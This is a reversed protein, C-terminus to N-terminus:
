VIEYRNNMFEKKSKNYEKTCKHCIFKSDVLKWKIPLEAYFCNNDESWSVYIDTTSYGCRQCTLKREFTKDM